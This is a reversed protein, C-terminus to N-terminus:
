RTGGTEGSAGLLADLMADYLEPLGTAAPTAGITQPVAVARAGTREALWASPRPDEYGSRIIARPPRGELSALLRALHAGSPPISPKPELFGVFEFGLWHALYPWSNHHAVFRAGKLPAARREWAAIRARWDTAFREANAAYEAANAPDLGALREALALAVPILNRPDTQVHPNGHPHVDGEARDLRTPVELMEIVSTAELYGAAGPQVRPNAAQRQLMPLWSGEYEAGTCVALDAGRLRAILSPRAQVHHVDQLGNTATYVEVRTGGIAVALASWEPECAFVKLEAPKAGALGASAIALLLLGRLPRHHM